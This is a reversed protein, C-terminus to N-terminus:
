VKCKCKCKCKEIGISFKKAYAVRRAASNEAAESSPQSTPLLNLIKKWPLRSPERDRRAGKSIRTSKSRSRRKELKGHSRNGDPLHELQTENQKAELTNENSIIFQDTKRSINKTTKDSSVNSEYNQQYSHEYTREFTWEFNREHSESSFPESNVFGWSSPPDVLLRRSSHFVTRMWHENHCRWDKLWNQSCTCTSGRCTNISVREFFLRILRELM